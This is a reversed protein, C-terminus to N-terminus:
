QETWCTTPKFGMIYKPDGIKDTNKWHNIETVKGTRLYHSMKKTYDKKFEDVPAPEDM